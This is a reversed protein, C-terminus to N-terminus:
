EGYGEFVSCEEPCWQYCLGSRVWDEILNGHEEIYIGDCLLM